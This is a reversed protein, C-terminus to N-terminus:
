KDKDKDKDKDKKKKSKKKEKEKKKQAVAITLAEKASRGSVVKQPIAEVVEDEEIQLHNFHYMKEFATEEEVFLANSSSRERQLYEHADFDNEKETLLAVAINSCHDSVRELDTVLDSLSFGAEISCTGKSLRRVHRNKIELSLGDIVEELPEVTKAKKLDEDIFAAFSRELCDEVASVFIKLEEKAKDSFVVDREHVDKCVGMINLAHDSIREFDNIVHLLVNLTHSDRDSFSSRSLKVLYSDLKDEYEDVHQEISDVEKAKKEDYEFILEDALKMSKLTYEAMRNTADKCLDLAYAPSSLFRDDLIQLTKRQEIAQKEEEDQPIVKMVIWPLIDAFPTMLAVAVINFSSHFIAIKVPTATQDIISFHFVNNLTYFLVVFVIVKILCFTMQMLATRRGNKSAGISGIMGTTSSGINAGLIIPIAGGMTLSGSIALAQLVGISASSSQLISSAIAGVVVGIVPNKFATLIAVFSENQTLPSSATSMANMGLLLVALGVLINGVDRNKEKKGVMTMILGILGVIPSFYKPKLFQLFVASSQIGTLSLLWATVTTGVNAGLIVGVAQNLTMIQSNVFGIVMVDTAGSSQIVATVFVGLLVSKVRNNTLKELIQGLTGGSLKKLSAGMANMGYLFLVLGGIMEIIIFITDM